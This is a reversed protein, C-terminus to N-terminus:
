EPQQIQAKRSLRRYYDAVSDEYGPPVVYPKGTRPQNAAAQREVQLELRDVASLVEEHLQEVLAPNGPFRKPDLARMKRALEEIEKAAEPDSQLAQRLNHLERLGQEITRETDAPNGSANNPV